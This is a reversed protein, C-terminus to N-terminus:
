QESAPRVGVDKGETRDKRCAPCTGLLELTHGVVDYDTQNRFHAELGPMEGPPLDAIRGCELCRIHYHPEVTGDFRRRTGASEIKRIMGQAALLDLTRYVTGLSIRPMRRRVRTYIKDATPHSRVKRLEELIVRRQETMHLPSQASM